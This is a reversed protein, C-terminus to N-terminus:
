AGADEEIVAFGDPSRTLWAGAPVYAWPNDRTKVTLVETSYDYFSLCDAMFKRLDKITLPHGDWKVRTKVKPPVPQPISIPTV